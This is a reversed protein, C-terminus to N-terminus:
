DGGLDDNLYDKLYNNFWQKTLMWNNSLWWKIVIQKENLWRNIVM